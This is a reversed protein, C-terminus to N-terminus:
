AKKNKAALSKALSAVKSELAECRDVLACITANLLKTHSTLCVMGGATVIEARELDTRDYAPDDRSLVPGRFFKDLSRTLAVDNWTEVAARATRYNAPASGDYFMDGEADFIFRTSTNNRLALINDDAGMAGATSGSLKSAGIVVAAAATADKTTNGTTYQGNLFLALSSESYGAMAVGGLTASAKRFTGFNYTATDTTFGHAVDSSKFLLLEGDDAGQDITVANSAVYVANVGNCGLALPVNSTSRVTFQQNASGIFGTVTGAVVGSVRSDDFFIGTNVPTYLFLSGQFQSVGAGAVFLSYNAVGGSPADNVTLTAATTLTAGGGGVTPPNIVLGSFGPHTGSAAKNLTSSFTHGNLSAGVAATETVAALVRGTWTTGDASINYIPPPIIIDDQTYVSAGASTKLVLKYSLSPNFYITARGGADLTIPTGYAVLMGVDTYVDRAIETGPVYFYAKGGALPTGTDDLFQVKPNVLGVGTSM